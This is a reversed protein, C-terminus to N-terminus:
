SANSPETSTAEHGGDGSTHVSEVCQCEEGRRAGFHASILVPISQHIDEIDDDIEHEFFSVVSHDGAGTITFDLGGLGSVWDFGSDDLNGLGPGVGPYDAGLNTDTLVGDINFGYGYLDITAANATVSSLGLM